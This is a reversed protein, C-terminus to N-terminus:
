LAPGARACPISDDAEIRETEPQAATTDVVSMQLVQMVAAHTIGAVM